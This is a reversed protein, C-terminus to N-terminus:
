SWTYYGFILRKFSLCHVNWCEAKLCTSIFSSWEFSFLPQKNLSQQLLPTLWWSKQKASIWHLCPLPFAKYHFSTKPTNQNPTTPLTSSSVRALYVYSMWSQNSVMDPKRQKTRLQFCLCFISFSATISWTRLTRCQNSGLKYNPKRTEASKTPWLEITIYLRANDTQIDTREVKTTELLLLWKNDKM